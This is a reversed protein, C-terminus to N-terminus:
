PVLDRPSGGAQEPAGAMRLAMKFAVPTAMSQQGM